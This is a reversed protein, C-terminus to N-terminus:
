LMQREEDRVMAPYETTVGPEFRREAAVKGGDLYVRGADLYFLVRVIVGWLAYYPITIYPKEMTDEGMASIAVFLVFALMMLLFEEGKAWRWYRCGQYAKTWAKILEIQVWLWALFGIVGLRAVVSIYSNHPERVTVGLDDKFDTLPVAYGLGTLLNVANSTLRRYIDDWWGYRLQVGEAALGLNHGGDSSAQGTIAMIHDFLFSLTIKDTLRGTIRLDFATIIGVALLFIPIALGLPVAARPRFTVVLLTLGLLQLYTTREQLVLIDFAIFLCGLVPYLFASAGRRSSIFCYFAAWLLITGSMAYTGVIPIPEGSAGYLQPSLRSLEMQYPFGLAYFAGVMIIAPLWRMIRSINAPRGALAFGVIIFLSEILQTADRFAWIGRELSDALLRAFGFGWWLVFPAMSVARGMTPLVTLINTTLLACVLFLEGLPVGFGSPPVRLQMFAYDFVLYGGLLLLLIRGKLDLTM